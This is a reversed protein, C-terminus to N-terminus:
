PFIAIFLAINEPALSEEDKHHYQNPLQLPRHCLTEIISNNATTFQSPANNFQITPPPANISKYSISQQDKHEHITHLHLYIDVWNFLVGHLLIMEAQQTITYCLIVSILLQLQQARQQHIYM